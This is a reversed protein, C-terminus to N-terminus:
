ILKSIEFMIKEGINAMDQSTLHINQYEDFYIPKGIKIVVKSFLKYTSKIGIPLVPANGKVSLLSVGPEAKQLKGTKSRTGEPFIGVVHGNKLHKLAIKIATLDSTGRKVPFAGLGNSLIFKFLPNKFLEAKAMFFIRRTFVAGIIPPDLFSIHNPCIIIPGREPINEYGEVEIRFIVNIIFLVIYKAVYYFM